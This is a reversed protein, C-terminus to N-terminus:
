QSLRIREGNTGETSPVPFVTGAERQFIKVGFVSITKAGGDEKTQFMGGLYIKITCTNVRMRRYVPIKWLKATGDELRMFRLALMKPHSLFRTYSQTCVSNLWDGCESYRLNDQTYIDKPVHRFYEGLMNYYKFKNRNHVTVYFYRSAKAVVKVFYKRDDLPINEKVQYADLKQFFLIIEHMYDCDKKSLGSVVGTGINIRYFYLKENLCVMRRAKYYNKFSFLADPLARKLDSDFFNNHELIFSRRYFKNWAQSPLLFIWEKVDDFSFVRKKIEDPFGSWDYEREPSAVIQKTHDDYLEACLFVMDCDSEIAKNYLKECADPAIYDDSDVIQLYDGTALELGKNCAGSFGQNKDFRFAKIRADSEAYSKIISPCNGRAENDILIIEIDKLSQGLISKICAHLYDEPPNYVPVIVSVKPPM